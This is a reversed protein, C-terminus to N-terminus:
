KGISPSYDGLYHNWESGYDIYFVLIVTKFVYIWGSIQTLWQFLTLRKWGNGSIEKVMLGNKRLILTMDM